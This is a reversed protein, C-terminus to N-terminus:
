GNEKKCIKLRTIEGDYFENCKLPKCYHYCSANLLTGYGSYDTEALPCGGCIDPEVLDVSIEIKM